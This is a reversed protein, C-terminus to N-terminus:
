MSEVDMIALLVILSLPLYGKEQKSLYILYLLRAQNREKYEHAISQKSNFSAGWSECQERACKLLIAPTYVRFRLINSHDTNNYETLLIRQIIIKLINTSPRTSSISLGHKVDVDLQLPRTCPWSQDADQAFLLNSPHTIEKWIYLQKQCATFCHLNSIPSPLM